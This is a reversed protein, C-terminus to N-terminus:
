GIPVFGAPLRLPAPIVFCNNGHRNGCHCPNCFCIPCCHRRACIPAPAPLTTITTVPAPLTVAPSVATPTNCGCSSNKIIEM